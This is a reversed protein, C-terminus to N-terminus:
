NCGGLAITEDIRQEGVNVKKANAQTQLLSALFLRSSESIFSKNEALFWICFCMSSADSACCFYVLRHISLNVHRQQTKKTYPRHSYTFRCSFHTFHIVGDHTM